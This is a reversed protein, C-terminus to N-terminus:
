SVKLQYIRRQLSISHIHHQILTLLPQPESGIQGEYNYSNTAEYYVIKKFGTKAQNSSKPTPQKLPIQSLLVLNEPDILKQLTEKHERPFLFKTSKTGHFVSDEDKTALYASDYKHIPKDSDNVIVSKPM